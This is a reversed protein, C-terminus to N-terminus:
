ISQPTRRKSARGLVGLMGLMAWFSLPDVTSCGGLIREDEKYLGGNRNTSSDETSPEGSPENVGAESGIFYQYAFTESYVFSSNWDETWAGITLYFEDASSVNSITIQAENGSFEMPFYEIQSGNKRTVTAGYEAPSDETGFSEGRIGFTMESASLNTALITNHGYRMPQLASPGNQWGGSGSAGVEVAILNEGEAYHPQYAEITQKFISGEQYDWVSMHAIHNLWAQNINVGYDQLYADLVLMPDAEAGQDNWSSWVLERDAEVETLHLPFIFAGYQHYEDVTGSDPYNFYNVPLHPLFSYGLLFGAMSAEGPYVQGEAWNATAEWYWASPGTEDYNYRYVRGQLAHFFEHAVTSPMYESEVTDKAIVIMPYGEEDGSFYGAAGYSSPTGSGSDGIYVNFLYQDTATPQLYGMQGVEIEWAVEFADL